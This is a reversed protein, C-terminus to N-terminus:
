KNPQFLENRIKLRQNLLVTFNVEKLSIIWLSKQTYTLTLERFSKSKSM